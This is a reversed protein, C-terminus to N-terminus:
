KHRRCLLATCEEIEQQLRAVEARARELRIRAQVQLSRFDAVARRFNMLRQYDEDLQRAIEAKGERRARVRGLRKGACNDPKSRYGQRQKRRPTCHRVFCCGYRCAEGARRVGYPAM